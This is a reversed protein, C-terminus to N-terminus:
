RYKCRAQQVVKRASRSQNLLEHRRQSLLTVRCFRLLATAMEMTVGRHKEQWTASRTRDPHWELSLRKMAEQLDHPTAKISPLGLIRFKSCACHPDGIHPCRALSTQMDAATPTTIAHGCRAAHKELAAATGCSFGCVACVHMPHYTPSSTGRLILRGM